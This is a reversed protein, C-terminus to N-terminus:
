FNSTLILENLTQFPSVKPASNLLLKPAPNGPLKPFIKIVKQFREFKIEAPPKLQPQLAKLSSHELSSLFFLARKVSFFLLETCALYLSPPREKRLIVGIRQM